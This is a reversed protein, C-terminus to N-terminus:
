SQAGLKLEQGPEIQQNQIEELAENLEDDTTRPGLEKNLQAINGVTLLQLGRVAQWVAVISFLVFGAAWIIQPIWLPTELPTSAHSDFELTERLTDISQWCLFCALAAILLAAFLNLLARASKPLLNVLVDVRTHARMILAYALSFSVGIALVYGGVEDVGQFSFNFFKRGIVEITIMVSLLFTVYGTVLAGARIIINPVRPGQESM